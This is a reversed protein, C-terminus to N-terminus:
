LFLVEPPVGGAKIAGTNVFQGDENRSWIHGLDYRELIAADGITEKTSFWPNTVVIDMSGLPAAARARELDELEGDPFTRADIRYINGPHGATLLVNLRAAVVLAPNMDCGFVHEAAWQATRAQAAQLENRTATNATTGAEVLFREFMYVASTALFTGTGCSGDFVREDPRPTLMAVAMEAVNLPTPYRGERGDM